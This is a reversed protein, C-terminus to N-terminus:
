SSTEGEPADGFFRVDLGRVFLNFLTLIRTAAFEAGFMEEESKWLFDEKGKRKIKICSPAYLKIKEFFAQEELSDSFLRVRTAQLELLRAKQKLVVDHQELARKQAKDFQTDLKKKKAKDEKSKTLKLMEQRIKQYDERYVIFMEWTSEIESPLNEMEREEKDTWEGTGVVIDQGDQKVVIPKNYIAKLEADTLLDGRRLHETKFKAVVRDGELALGTKPLEFIITGYEKIVVEQKGLFVEELKKGDDAAQQEKESEATQNLIEKEKVEAM